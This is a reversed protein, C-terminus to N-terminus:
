KKAKWYPVRKETFVAPRERADADDTSFILMSMLREISYAADM